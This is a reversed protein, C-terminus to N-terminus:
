STPRGSGGHARRLVGREFRWRTWLAVGFALTMVPGFIVARMMMAAGVLEGVLAIYNPHNVYRYPGTGVLPREPQVLVRFSWREGLTRIAWYKL